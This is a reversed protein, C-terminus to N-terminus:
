ISIGKWRRRIIAFIMDTLPMGLVLLPFVVGIVTATKLLGLISVAGIIYGLFMSGSDGMFVKAPHFNFVLFGLCAGALALMLYSATVQEIRNASWFLIASAIFCIGAALGDLGDSFNVTNVLGVVWIVAVLVGFIGLNVTGIFPLTVKAVTLGFWILISASIFQWCLKTLPKLGKIDDVIGVIFIITSGLLLGLVTSDIEVKLLVATWFAVYIATGGMRPVPITHVRREGPYDMIGWRKALIITIPTVIVAIIVALLFTMIYSM